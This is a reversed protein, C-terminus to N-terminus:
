ARKRKLALGAVGLLLLLGSTPEPVAQWNGAVQATAFINAANGVGQQSATLPVAKAMFMDGYTADTYTALVISNYNGGPVGAADQITIAGILNGTSGRNVGSYDATKEAVYDYLASQDMGTVKSWETSDSVLFIKMAVEAGAAVVGTSSWGGTADAATKLTGSTWKVAGAQALAAACVIAAAIMLKKM